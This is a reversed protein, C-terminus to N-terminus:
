NVYYSLLSNKRIRELLLPNEKELQETLLGRNLERITEQLERIRVEADELSKKYVDVMKELYNNTEEPTTILM